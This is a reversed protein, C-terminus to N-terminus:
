ISDFLSLSESSQAIMRRSCDFGVQLYKCYCHNDDGAVDAKKGDIQIEFKRQRRGKGNSVDCLDLPKRLTFQRCHEPEINKKNFELKDSGFKIWTQTRNLEIASDTNRNCLKFKIETSVLRSGEACETGSDEYFPIEAGAVFSNM